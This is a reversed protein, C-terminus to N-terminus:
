SSLIYSSVNTAGGVAKTTKFLLAVKASVAFKDSFGTRSFQEVKPAQMWAKAYFSPDVFMVSNGGTSSKTAGKLQDISHMVDVNGFDSTHREIILEQVREAANVNRTVKTSYQSITRKIWSNVYCQSPVIDWNQDTFVQQLDIFVDETLTMASGNTLTTSGAINLM